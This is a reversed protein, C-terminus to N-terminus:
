TLTKTSPPAVFFTFVLGTILSIAAGYVARVARPAL